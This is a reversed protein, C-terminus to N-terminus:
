KYVVCCCTIHMTNNHKGISRALYIRVLGEPERLLVEVRDDTEVLGVLGVIVVVQGAGWGSRVHVLVYGVDQSM